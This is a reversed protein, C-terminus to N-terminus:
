LSNTVRLLGVLDALHVRREFAVYEPEIVTPHWKLKYAEQTRAPYVFPLRRGVLDVARGLLGNRGPLGDWEDRRQVFPTFGFTLCSSRGEEQFAQLATVNILEMVGPPADPARRSLDHLYGHHDGFAPVYSVFGIVEGDQHAYFVRREEQAPDGLEGVMFRLEKVHRGKGKLWRATLLTMDDYVARRRAPDGDLEHVTVGARRARSIKNRLRVFRSGGLHYGDLEVTFSAGFQNVCFGREAYLGASEATLQVVCIRGRQGAVLERFADVLAAREPGPAVPDGFQFFRRGLRRYAVLGDIGPATFVSTGANLALYASGHNAHRGLIQLCEDRSPVAEVTSSM